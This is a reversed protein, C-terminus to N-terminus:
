LLLTMGKKNPVHELHLRDGTTDTFAAVLKSCEALTLDSTGKASGKGYHEEGPFLIDVPWNEMVLSSSALNGLLTKWPFQKM